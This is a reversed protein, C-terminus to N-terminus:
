QVTHSETGTGSDYSVHNEEAKRAMNYLMYLEPAGTDVFLQWIHKAEM